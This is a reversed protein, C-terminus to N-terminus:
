VKKEQEPSINEEDHEELKKLYKLLDHKIIMAIISYLVIIFLLPKLWTNYYANLSQLPKCEEITSATYLYEPVYAVVGNSVANTDNKVLRKDVVAYKDPHANFDYVLWAISIVIWFKIIWELILLGTKAYEKIKDEKLPQNPEILTTM